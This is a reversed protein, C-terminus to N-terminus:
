YDGALIPHWVTNTDICDTHGMYNPIIQGRNVLQRDSPNTDRDSAVFTAERGPLPSSILGSTSPAIGMRDGYPFQAETQAM